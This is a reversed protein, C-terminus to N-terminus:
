KSHCKDTKVVPASTNDVSWVDGISDGKGTATAYFATDSGSDIAYDYYKADPVSWKLETISSAYKNNAARYAEQASKISALNAQAEAQRSRCMYQNKASFCGTLVLFLAVTTRM